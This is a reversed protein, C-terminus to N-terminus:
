EADLSDEENITALAQTFEEEINKLMTKLEPSVASIYKGKTKNWFHQTENFDYFIYETTEWIILLIFNILSLNFLTRHSFKETYGGGIILSSAHTNIFVGTTSRSPHTVKSLIGYMLGANNIVQKLYKICDKGSIKVDLYKNFAEPDIHFSVALALSEFASRILYQPELVYGQRTLQLAGIMTNCSQWIISQSEFLEDSIEEQKQYNVIKDLIGYINTLVYVNNALNSKYKGDIEQQANVAYKYVVNTILVAYHKLKPDTQISDIM